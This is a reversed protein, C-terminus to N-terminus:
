LDREHRLAFLNKINSIRGAGNASPGPVFRNWEKKPKL